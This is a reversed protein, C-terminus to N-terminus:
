KKIKRFSLLPKLILFTLWIFTGFAISWIWARQMFLTHFISYFLTNPRTLIDWSNFRLFRGLFIGFGSLFSISFLFFHTTKISFRQTFVYFMDLMSLIGYVLGNIAFVFILIFDFWKIGYDNEVHILDTFIYASNPIFLLWLIFLLTILIKSSKIKESCIIYTSIALPIIALFLNWALFTFLITQTYIVRILLLSIGFITGYILKRYIQNSLITSFKKNM